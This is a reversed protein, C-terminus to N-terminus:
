SLRNHDGIIVNYYLLQVYDFAFESGKMSEMNNQNLNKLSKFFKKTVQGSEDDIMIEINEIKSHLVREEHNDISSIFNVVITLQIKWM